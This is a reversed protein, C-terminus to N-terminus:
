TGGGHGRGKGRKGEPGFQGRERLAQALSQEDATAQDAQKALIKQIKLPATHVKIGLRETFLAAVNGLWREVEAVTLKPRVVESMYRGSKDNVEWRRAEANWGFEGSIRAKALVTQGSPTFGAAITPHALGDAADLWDKSKEREEDTLVSKLYGSGIYVNGNGVVAYQWRAGLRSLLTPPFESLPYWLPNLRVREEAGEDKQELEQEKVKGPKPAVLPALRYDLETATEGVQAGRAARAAARANQQATLLGLFQELEERAQEAHAEAVTEAARAALQEATPIAGTV